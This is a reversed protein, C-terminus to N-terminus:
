GVSLGAAAEDRLPAKPGGFPLELITRFDDDFIIAGNNEIDKVAGVALPRHSAEIPSEIRTV